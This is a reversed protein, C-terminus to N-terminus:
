QQSFRMITKQSYTKGPVLVASPFEPRNPSDPLFQPELCFAQHQDFGGSSPQGDLFNGTYFQIGPQDTFVEVKRGSEPDVVEAALPLASSSLGSDTAECHHLVYCHDYGIPDNNTLDLRSGISTPQRFDFPTDAVSAIGTPIGESDISVFENAAIKVQHHFINGSVAGALNWYCHNTLNVPTPQDCTARYAVTLENENNLTYEVHIELKGPYGEDGDLSVLSFRVGVENERTIEESQWIKKDFGFKGGHLHHRGDNAALEYVSGNMSFSANAIRNAFRGVTSGFYATCAEYGEIDSCGLTVNTTTGDGNPVRFAAVTAGYDLMELVYGNQNTCQYRRVPQNAHTVGYDSQTVRMEASITMAKKEAPRFATPSFPNEATAKQSQNATILISSICGIVFAFFCLGLKM